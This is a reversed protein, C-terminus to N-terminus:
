PMCSIALAHPYEDDRVFDLIQLVHQSQMRMLKEYVRMERELADKDRSEARVRKM